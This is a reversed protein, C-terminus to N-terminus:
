DNRVPDIAPTVHRIIAEIVPNTNERTVRIAPYRGAFVRFIEDAFGQGVSTVERFDLVIERFKELNALLRRAESRSVYDRRLLKVLVKTKQFQFDYEKPAFENFVDALRRRTSRQIV